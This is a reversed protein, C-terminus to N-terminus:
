ETAPSSSTNLPAVLHHAVREAGRGDCLSRWRQQRSTWEPANSVDPTLADILEDPTALVLCLDREALFRANPRQNDAVPIVACPVGVAALEFATTSPTTVAFDAWSMAAAMQSPSLDRHVEIGASESVRTAPGAVLRIEANANTASIARTVPGSLGAPDTGGMSVLFRELRAGRDVRTARAERFAPQLLAYDIGALVESAPYQWHETGPNPNVIMDAARLDRENTDDVVCVKLDSSKLMSLYEADAPYADIVVWPARHQRAVERTRAADASGFWGENPEVMMLFDDPLATQQWPLMSDDKNLVLWAHGGAATVADALSLCRSLHGLGEAASANCRFVVRPAHAGGTETVTLSRACRKTIEGSYRTGLARRLPSRM